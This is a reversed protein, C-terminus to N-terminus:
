GGIYLSYFCACDALTCNPMNEHCQKPVQTIDVFLMWVQWLKKHCLRIQMVIVFLTILGLFSGYKLHPAVLTRLYVVERLEIGLVHFNKPVGPFIQFLSPM